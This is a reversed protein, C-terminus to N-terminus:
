ALHLLILLFMAIQREVDGSLKSQRYLILYARNRIEELFEPQSRRLRPQQNKRLWKKHKYLPTLSLPMDLGEGQRGNRLTCMYKYHQAFDIIKIITENSLQYKYSAIDVAIDKPLVSSSLFAVICDQQFYHNNKKACKIIDAWRWQQYIHVKPVICSLKDNKELEAFPMVMSLKRQPHPRLGTSNRNMNKVSLLIM